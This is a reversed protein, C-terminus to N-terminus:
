EEHYVYWAELLGNLFVFEAIVINENGRPDKHAMFYQHREFPLQTIVRDPQRNQFWSFLENKDRAYMLNEAVIYDSFTAKGAGKYADSALKDRLTLEV